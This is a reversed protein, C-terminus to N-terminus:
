IYARPGRRSDRLILEIITIYVQMYIITSYISVSIDEHDNLDAGRKKNVGAM